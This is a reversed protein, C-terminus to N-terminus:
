LNRAASACLPARLSRGRDSTIFEKGGVRVVASALETGQKDSKLSFALRPAGSDTVCGAKQNEIKIEDLEFM